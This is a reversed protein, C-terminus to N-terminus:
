VVRFTGGGHNLAFWAVLDTTKTDASAVWVNRSEAPDLSVHYPSLSAALFAARAARKTPFSVEIANLTKTTTPTTM